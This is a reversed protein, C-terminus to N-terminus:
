IFLRILIGHLVLVIVSFSSVHCHCLFLVVFSSYKYVTWAVTNIFDLGIGRVALVVTLPLAWLQSISSSLWSVPVLFFVLLSLFSSIFLTHVASLLSIHLVQRNLTTSALSIPMSPHTVECWVCAFVGCVCAFVRLCLGCVCAFVTWNGFGSNRNLLISLLGLFFNNM